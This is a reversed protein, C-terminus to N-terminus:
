NRLFNSNYLIGFSKTFSTFGFNATGFLRDPVFAHNPM